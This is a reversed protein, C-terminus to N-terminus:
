PPPSIDTIPPIGWGEWGVGFAARVQNGSPIEITFKRTVLGSLIINVYEVSHFHIDEYATPLFQYLLICGLGM